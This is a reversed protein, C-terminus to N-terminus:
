HAVLMPLDGHMFLHRTTGGLVMQALRSRSWAGMVLLDARHARAADLILAGAAHTPGADLTQIRAKISHRQLWDALGPPPLVAITDAYMESGDLLLVDDAQQLVPAAAALALASERSGNWAVLVRAGLTDDIRATDPVVLVPRDSGFVCRSVTGFGVPADSRQQSREMVLYDYGAAAQCVTQVTDGQAVRWSGTLSHSALLSQWDGGHEEAEACRRRTEELQVPVAEPLSFAAAPLDAVYLGDLRAGLRAALAIAARTGPTRLDTEQLYLLLDTSSM